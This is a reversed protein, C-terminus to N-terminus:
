KVRYKAPIVLVKGNDAEYHTFGASFAQRFQTAKEIGADLKFSLVNANPAVKAVKAVKAKPQEITPLEGVLKFAGFTKVEKVKPAAKILSMAKPAKPEFTGSLQVQVDHRKNSTQGGQKSTRYKEAAVLKGMKDSGVMRHMFKELAKRGDAVAQAFPKAVGKVKKVVPTAQPQNAQNAFPNFPVNLRIINQM